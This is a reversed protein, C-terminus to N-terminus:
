HHQNLRHSRQAQRLIQEIAESRSAYVGREVLEDVWKILDVEISISM